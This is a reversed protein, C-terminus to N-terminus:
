SMQNLGFLAFSRDFLKAKFENAYSKLGNQGMDREFASTISIKMATSLFVFINPQTVLENLIQWCLM